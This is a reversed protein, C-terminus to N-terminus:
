KIKLTEKLVDIFSKKQPAKHAQLKILRLERLAEICNPNCILAKEFQKEAFEQLGQAKYITGLFLYAREARPNIQVARNLAERGNFQLDSESQGDFLKRDEDTIDREKPINYLSWGYYAIYEAENTSTEMARRFEAAARAFRKDKLYQKGNQFAQEALIIRKVGELRSDTRPGEEQDELRKVYAAIKEQTTLAEYAETIRRFIEEVQARVEESARGFFRDPHYDKALRHYAVRVEHETPNQNVGLVQLYNGQAVRNFMQLVRTRV